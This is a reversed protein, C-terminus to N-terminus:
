FPWGFLFHSIVLIVACIFLFKLIRFVGAAFTRRTTTITVTKIYKPSKPQPKYRPQEEFCNRYLRDQLRANRKERLWNSFM